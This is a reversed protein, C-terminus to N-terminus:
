ETIEVGSLFYNISGGSVQLKLSYNTAMRLDSVELVRYNAGIKPPLKKKALILDTSNNNGYITVDVATAGANTIVLFPHVQAGSVSNTYITTVATTSLLGWALPKQLTAM